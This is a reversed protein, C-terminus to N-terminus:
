ETPKYKDRRGFISFHVYRGPNIRMDKLLKDLDEASKELNYYLTDNNILKGMTGDGENIKQMIDSVDALAKKANNVTQTIDAAALSDSIASLNTLTNDLNDSNNKFTTTVASLNSTIHAIKGKESILLTDLTRTAFELNKLTKEFQGLGTEINKRANENLIIQVVEIASDLSSILEEAKLKLPLIQQNVEEKLSAEVATQLEQEPELPEASQGLEIQIAKSGLIDASVIKAKSDKPIFVEEYDIQLTLKVKGTKPDAFDIKKVLGIQVGSLVVPSSVTIGDVRDYQAYYQSHKTLLNTGKLFNLGWFLLVVAVVVTVGILIEKKYKM